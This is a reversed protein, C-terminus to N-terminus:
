TAVHFKLQKLIGWELADAGALEKGARKTGCTKLMSYFYCPECRTIHFYKRPRSGELITRHGTIGDRLNSIDNKLANTPLEGQNEDRELWDVADDIKEWCDKCDTSCKRVRYPGPYLNAQSMVQHMMWKDDNTDVRPVHQMTERIDGAMKRYKKIIEDQKACLESVRAEIHEEDRQITSNGIERFLAALVPVADFNDENKLTRHLLMWDLSADYLRVLAHAFCSNKKESCTIVHASSSTITGTAYKRLHVLLNHLPEQKEGENAQKGHKTFNAFTANIKDV